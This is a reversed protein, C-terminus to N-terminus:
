PAADVGNRGSVATRAPQAAATVTRRAWGAALACGAAGVACAAIVGAMARPGGGALGVVPAALGGLVFSALGTLASAAGAVERHDALALATANPGVLGVGAVALFLGPLIGPLGTGAASAALLLAAGTVQVAGGALLLRRSDTRRVLRASVQSLLVFGAANTGFVLSFLQPSLDYVQQLVFPSGSIYAFMAGFALGNALGHLVFAHDRLLSRFTRLTSRVGGPRRREPPLTEVLLRSALALLVAGAVALVVFVGRWDTRRLVQAGLVPALVPAAGMVLVLRAFAQAAEPGDYLDRVVARSCVVGAAGALGQLLRLVILVEVSPAFACTVSAVAFVATGVLVPRRRGVADSLPGALVQGLALGVLLASLSLAAASDSAGLDAALSPLAPLYADVALPTLGTLAGLLALGRASRLPHTTM